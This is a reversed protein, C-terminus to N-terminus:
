CAGDGIVTIDDVWMNQAGIRGWYVASVWVEGEYNAQEYTAYRQWINPKSLLFPDSQEENSSRKNSAYNNQNTGARM